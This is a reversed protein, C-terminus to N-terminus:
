GQPRARERPWLLALARGHGRGVTVVARRSQGDVEATIHYSGAKPFNLLMIPGDCRTDLLVQGRPDAVHVAVDALYAGSREAFTLMLQYRGALRKIQAAENAGVGGCVYSFGSDERSQLGPSDDQALAVSASCACGALILRAVFQNAQM